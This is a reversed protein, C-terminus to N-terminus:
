ESVISYEISAAKSLDAETKTEIKKTTGTEMSGKVEDTEEVLVTGTEDMIKMQFKSGEYVYGTNNIVITKIVGDSAGVNVFELGEFIQDQVVTKDGSNTKETEVVNRKSCGCGTLVLMSFLVVLVKKMCVDRDKRVIEKLM